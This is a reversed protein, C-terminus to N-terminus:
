QTISLINTSLGAGGHLAQMFASLMFVPSRWSTLYLPLAHLCARSFKKYASIDLISTMITTLASTNSLHWGHPGVHADHM